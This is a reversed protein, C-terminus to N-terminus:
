GVGMRGRLRRVGEEVEEGVKRGRGGVMARKGKEKREEKEM